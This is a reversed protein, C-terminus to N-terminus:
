IKALELSSELDGNSKKTSRPKVLNYTIDFAVTDGYINYLERMTPSMALFLEPIDREAGQYERMLYGFNTLTATAERFRIQWNM